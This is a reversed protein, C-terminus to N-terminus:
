IKFNIAQPIFSFFSNLQIVEKDNNFDETDRRNTFNIDNCLTPFFYIGAPIMLAQNVAIQRRNVQLHFAKNVV